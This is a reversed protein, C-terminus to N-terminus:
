WLRYFIFFFINNCGVKSMAKLLTVSGGVNVDYYRVLDAVSEGIAKLGAFHIVTEPKFNNFIKDLARTDRIDSNM